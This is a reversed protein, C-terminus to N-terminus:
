LNKCTRQENPNEKRFQYTRLEDANWLRLLARQPSEDAFPTLREIDVRYWRQECAQAQRQAVELYPMMKREFRGRSVFRQGTVPVIRPCRGPAIEKPREPESAVKQMREKM